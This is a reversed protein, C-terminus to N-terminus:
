ALATSRAPPTAKAAHDTSSTALRSRISPSIHRGEGIDMAHVREGSEGPALPLSDILREFDVPALRRSSEGDFGKGHDFRVILARESNPSPRAQPRPPRKPLPRRM